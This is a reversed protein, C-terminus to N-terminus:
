NPSSWGAGAPCRTRRELWSSCLDFYLMQTEMRDEAIPAIIYTIALDVEREELRRFVLSGDDAWLHCIIRPYRRSLREIAAGVFGLAMAIPAAIRVEGATPDALFQLDKVSLRLEDFVAVSRKILARGYPTPVIGQPGRDLLRVGLSYELDAIARSIAPQSTGLRKAAKSMSGDEVVSMLVRLDSLKLRREIREIDAM